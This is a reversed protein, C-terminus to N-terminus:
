PRSTNFFSNLIFYGQGELQGAALYYFALNFNNQWDTPEITQNPM